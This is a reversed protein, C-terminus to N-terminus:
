GPLKFGGPIGKQFLGDPDYRRSTEQLKSVSESGYGAIVDQNGNGYNAFIYQHLLGKESAMGKLEAVLDDIATFIRADDEALKWSPNILVVFLPGESPPIAM